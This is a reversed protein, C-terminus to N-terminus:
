PASFVIRESRNPPAARASVLILPPNVLPKAISDFEIPLRSRCTQTSHNCLPFNFTDTLSLIRVNINMAM